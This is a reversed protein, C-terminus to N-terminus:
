TGWDRRLSGIKKNSRADSSDPNLLCVSGKPLGYDREIRREAAGVTGNDRLDRFRRGEEARKRPGKNAM